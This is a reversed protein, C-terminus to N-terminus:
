LEPKQNELLKLIKDLKAAQARESAAVAGLLKEELAEFKQDIYSKFLLLSAASSPSDQATSNGTDGGSTPPAPSSLSPGPPVLTPPLGSLPGSTQFAQFVARFQQAKDSLPQSNSLLSDVSTLSFHGTATPLPAPALTVALSFFWVPSTSSPPLRLTLRSHGPALLLSGKFVALEEDEQEENGEEGLNLKQGRLSAIYQLGGVVEWLPRSSTLGVWSIVSGPSAELVLEGRGEGELRVCKEADEAEGEWDEEAAVVEALSAINGAAVEWSSTARVAM